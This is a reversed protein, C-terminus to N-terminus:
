PLGIVGVPRDSDPVYSGDGLQGHRNNGWCVVRGGRLRACESEIDGGDNSGFVEEAATIGYVTSLRPRCCPPYIDGLTTTGWCLVQGTRRAACATLGKTAISVADEIGPIDTAAPSNYNTWGRGPYDGWCAIRGSSRLACGDSYNVDLEVADTIGAVEVLGDRPQTTGDGLQGYRNEGRCVIRGNARLICLSALTVSVDVADTITPEMVYGQRILEEYGDQGFMLSTFAGSGWCAVRGTSLAACSTYRDVSVQRAILGFPMEHPKVIAEVAGDPLSGLAHNWIGHTWGWCLVRGGLRLACTNAGGTSFDSVGTIGPVDIAHRRNTGTGDGLQGRGNDGWCALQGSARRVCHHADMSTGRSSDQPDHIDSAAPIPTPSPPMGGGQGGSGVPGSGPGPGSGGSTPSGPECADILTFQPGIPPMDLTFRWETFLVDAVAFWQQKARLTVKACLQGNSRAETLAKFEPGVNGGVGVRGGAKAAIELGLFAKIEGQQSAYRQSRTTKIQWFGDAGHRKSVEFGLKVRGSWEMAGAVRGTNEMQITPSFDVVFPTPGLPIQLHVRPYVRCRTKGELAATLKVTIEGTIVATVMLQRLDFDGNWRAKSLDVDANVEPRAKGDCTAVWLRPVAAARAGGLDLVQELPGSSSIRLESYADQLSAPKLSVSRGNVATVRGIVGEPANASRNIVLVSGVKPREAAAALTVTQERGPEGTVTTVNHAPIEVAGKRLKTLDRQRRGNVSDGAMLDRVRDGKRRTFRDRDPGGTLQDAGARGDLRDSGPGGDIRDRGPGGCVIDDGALARVSAGKRSTIVIVDDEATGKGTRGKVVITAVKGMCRPKTAAAAPASTMSPIVSAAVGLVVLRLRITSLGRHRNM